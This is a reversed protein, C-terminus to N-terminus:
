PRRNGWGAELERKTKGAMQQTYLFGIEEKGALLDHYVSDAFADLDAAHAHVGPGGLNTNVAPPIIEIVEIGHEKLQERLTYTFSHMGAKTAGYVPVNVPPRFALGSSVNCLVAHAKGKLFPAFLGCLHIPADFNTDIEKKWFAWDLEMLNVRQQIGANNIVINVDPYDRAVTEFLRIRDEEISVDALLPILGPNEAVTADLKEANRGVILVRNADALYRKALALGIGSTGGTILITDAM